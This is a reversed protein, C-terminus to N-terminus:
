RTLGKVQNLLYAVAGVGAIVLVTKMTDGAPKTIKDFISKESDFTDKTLAKSEAYGKPNWKEYPIKGDRALVFISTLFSNIIPIEVSTTKNIQQALLTSDASFVGNKGSSDPSLAFSAPNNGSAMLATYSLELNNVLETNKGSGGWFSKMKSELQTGKLISLMMTAVKEQWSWGFIGMLEPDNKILSIKM